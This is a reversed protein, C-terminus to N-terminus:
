NFTVLGWPNGDSNNGMDQSVGGGVDEIMMDILPKIAFPTPSDDPMPEVSIVAAMGVVVTAPDVFDQGPFPPGGDPGAAAGAADSDAGTAATFTGTSIPGNPGAVWGEYVWGEPLEPLALSAAPGGGGIQLWWIGQDYDDAVNSSTPTELIYSGVAGTFDTGLAAGHELSLAAETGEVDGGLVHTASPAPDDGEEPEITLVFAAAADADARAVWGDYVDTGEEIQFRGTTVPAGDVIIWGEYVYGAGLPELGSLEIKLNAMDDGSGGAGGDGSGGDASGGEGATGGTNTSGGTGNGDGDASDDGCGFLGLMSTTAVFGFFLTRFSM